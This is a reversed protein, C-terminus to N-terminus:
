IMVSKLLDFSKIITRSMIGSSRAPIWKKREFLKTYQNVYITNIHFVYVFYTEDIALSSYGFTMANM